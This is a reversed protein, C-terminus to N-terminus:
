TRDPKSRDFTNPRTTKWTQHASSAFSARQCCKHQVIAKMFSLRNEIWRFLTEAIKKYEYEYTYRWETGDKMFVYM